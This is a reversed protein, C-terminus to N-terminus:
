ANPSLRGLQGLPLPDALRDSEINLWADNVDMDQSGHTTAPPTSSPKGESSGRVPEERSPSTSPSAAITSRVGISSPGILAATLSGQRLGALPDLAVSISADLDQSGRVTKVASFESTDGTPDTATASVVEGATTAASLEGSVPTGPGFSADGNGDTTVALSGLYRQGQGFGSPDATASAYFDLKFTTNAASHLKGKVVTHGVKSLPRAGTLVPFNQLNNPGPSPNHKHNPTVGDNGLDIGLGGNQYISNGRISNGVTASDTISSGIVVGAGTNHHIVNGAGAVTEGIVNEHAGGAVEVGVGNGFSATGTPDTGIFNGLVLNNKAGVGFIEVGVLSENAIVNGAGAATGGITNNAVGQTVRDGQLLIGVANGFNLMGTPDTGLFNGEIVNNNTGDPAASDAMEIGFGSLGGIVNGAGATTGGITDGSCEAALIGFSGDSLRGTEQANVGILNGEVVDNFAFGMAVGIRVNGSIVNGAGAATGGVTNGTGSLLIGDFNGVPASGSANTGVYNGEVVNGSTNSGTIDVGEDSNGSIVNGAGPTTGGVTNGSAGALLEVGETNGLAATGQANIGVYNGEVVNGTTATDSVIVGDLNGSIVNRAVAATGGVTNDFAGGAIKVGTGNGSAVGAPNVGILNGEVVNDKAAIGFIEVGVLSENAIVNGSVTNNAVGQTVVNGELLIGIGNGFNLQGTPDTGIFNGEIANNNTGDPAASDDMEIEGGIVNAAGAATGGITDGSCEAAFIGFSGNSLRGTGQANVGILNGEVVDNFAFGMAVGIRVNGSIVNGAGPATGGITNGTGSLAIGDFNALPVRGSADTGVYNGEVVNGSTNSGTIDVGEDSNGSIVNGAGPTTGGVTNGSAGALLEIGETNGLAATGAANTGVYNGEVVNGTTATDSVIVGDLNGSMVNRAAVSTGGIVNDFAGGAIEVGIGNGLSLTSNPNRAILNGEVVNNHAAIGFIEVGVLSENDIVNGSVTNNAVGQTVANGELRIGVANGFNLTGTPDTGFFNGQIVNSNAGGSLDIVDIGDGGVGGIINGAGGATGGITIGSVANALIGFSGNTLTATGQANIGISNGELVDNVGGFYFVGSRDNGSFVNRAGSVTGGITDGTGDDQLGDYNPVASTGTADTGVYNGQFDNGGGATLTIVAGTGAGSLVNRTDPTTGGIVNNGSGADVTVDSDGNSFNFAGGPGHTGLINGEIVNGGNIDMLIANGGFPSSSTAAFNDIMLGRVTSNGATIHLGNFGAGLSTGDLEIKLVANDGVTLTNVSAGPQSYGDIAVPDTIIPLPLGTTNGVAITQVGSGAINFDIIDPGPNANADLIAQRLSGPGADLTNTVMLVSPLSRDELAELQPRRRFTRRPSTRRWSALSNIWSDFSM